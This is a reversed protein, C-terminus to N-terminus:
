RLPIILVFDSAHEIVRARSYHSNLTGGQSTVYEFLM